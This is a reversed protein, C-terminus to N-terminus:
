FDNQQFKFRIKELFRRGNGLDHPVGRMEIRLHILKGPAFFFEIDSILKGYLVQKARVYNSTSSIINMSKDKLVIGMIKEFARNKDEHYKIPEIFRKENSLEKFSVNCNKDRCEKLAFGSVKGLKKVSVGLGEPETSDICSTLLLTSFILILLKNM